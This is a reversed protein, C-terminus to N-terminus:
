VFFSDLASRDLYIMADVDYTARPRAYFSTAIGGIFVIRIKEKRCIKVLIQIISILANSIM